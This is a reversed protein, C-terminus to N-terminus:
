WKHPPMAPPIKMMLQSDGQVPNLTRVRYVLVMWVLNTGCFSWIWFMNFHGWRWIKWGAAWKNRKLQWRDVTPSVVCANWEAWQTTGASVKRGKSRGLVEGKAPLMVKGKSPHSYENGLHSWGSERRCSFFLAWCFWCVNLSLLEQKISYNRCFPVSLCSINGMNIMVMVMVM